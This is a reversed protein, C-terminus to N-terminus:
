YLKCIDQLGSSSNPHKADRSREVQLTTLNELKDECQEEDECGILDPRNTAVARCTPSFYQKIHRPCCCHPM